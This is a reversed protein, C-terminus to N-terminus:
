LPLTASASSVIRDFLIRLKGIRSGVLMKLMSSPRVASRNLNLGVGNVSPVPVTVSISTGTNGNISMTTFPASDAVAPMPKPTSVM